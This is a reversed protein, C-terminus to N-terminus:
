LAEGFYLDKLEQAVVPGSALGTVLLIGLVSLPARRM